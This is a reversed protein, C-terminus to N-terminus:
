EDSEDSEETDTEAEKEKSIEDLAEDLGAGADKKKAVTTPKIGKCEIECSMKGDKDKTCSGVEGEIMVKDGPKLDLGEIRSIHTSPFYEKSKDFPKIESSDQKKGLSIFSEKAM